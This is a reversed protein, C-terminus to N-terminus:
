SLAGVASGAVSCAIGGALLRVGWVRERISGVLIQSLGDRLLADSEAMENRLTAMGEDHQADIASRMTNMANAVGATLAAVGM